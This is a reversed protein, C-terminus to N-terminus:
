PREMVLGMKSALREPRVRLLLENHQDLRTEQTRLQDQKTTERRPASAAIRSRAFREPLMQEVLIDGRIFPNSSKIDDAIRTLAAGLCIWAPGTTSRPNALYRPIWLSDELYADVGIGPKGRGGCNIV